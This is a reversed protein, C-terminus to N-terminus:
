SRLATSAQELAQDLRNQPLEMLAPIDTWLLACRVAKDPYLAQLLSQYVAMQGYYLPSVDEVNDPPPRNTKFDVILIEEDTIVLRDIQGNIISGTPLGPPHGSISVEARSGPAFVAAFAPDDLVSLTEKLITERMPEDLDPQAQLYRRTSAERRDKPVEPLIELLKHIISGRRFRDPGPDGVPSLVPLFPDADQLLHSPAIPRSLRSEPKIAETLWGPFDASTTTPGSGAGLAPPDSGYRIASPCEFGDTDAVDHLATRVERWDTGQWAKFLRDHWSDPTVKGPARGHMAGCVILRDRARTLAVYLLRDNEARSEAQAEAKLDEVEEPFSQSDPPWLLGVEDHAYLMDRNVGGLQTTDPLFVIPAELGKAGHVTMVRVEPASGIVERKIETADSMMAHAFRSLSPAGDQEHDLAKALFADLPDRAEQGLRGYIRTIYREGTTSRANLLRSFFVYPTDTDVHSRLEELLARAESFRELKTKRLKDWLRRGPERSLSFLDADDLGDHTGVPHFFPSKLITALSLDDEPLLAFRALALLDEVIIQDTLTLRDAGAVPVNKLKLRRIIEDFLGGSRKRVLVLIDGPRAAEAIWGDATERWVRDGRSLIQSIEEAVAEALRNRSSQITPRDVPGDDTTEDEGKDPQPIAPWLEVCGPTKRRAADHGKYSQFPLVRKEREDQYKVEPAREERAELLSQEDAFALDVATLVEECSRFSVRLPPQDFRSNADDSTQALRAGESMFLKPDADQFSYISQKEDGVYFVTRDRARSIGEGAFFEESLANIVSWQAPSTDQAEDVLIHDLGKDLKYLTWVRADSDTLLARAHEVLDAFDIRRTLALRAEYLELWHAALRIGARSLANTAAKKLRPLVEGLIREREDGQDGFLTELILNRKRLGKTFIDKRPQGKGTLFLSIYLELGSIPHIRGCHLAENLIVKQKQDNAGLESELAVIACALDAKPTEMWADVMADRESLEPPVELLDSVWDMLGDVSGAEQIAETLDHRHNRAFGILTDLASPGVKEMLIALAESLPGEPEQSIDKLLSDRAAQVAKSAESDDQVEFGPPLGAELPFQRLLRECFAHITQVKLGGPTELARAFLRRAQALRNPDPRIEPELDVLKEKLADDDLTSWTGLKEFLRTQMEGAAAKTFTVCLIRDPAAGDLLLRAVRDVLVRTKGSGANAEVFVNASPDSARRQNASASAVISPDFGPTTM